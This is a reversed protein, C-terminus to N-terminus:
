CMICFPIETHFDLINKKQFLFFATFLNFQPHEIERLRTNHTKKTKKKGQNTEITELANFQQCKKFKLGFFNEYNCLVCRKAKQPQPPSPLTLYLRSSDHTKRTTNQPYYVHTILESGGLVLACVVDLRFLLCKTVVGIYVNPCLRVHCKKRERLLVCMFHWKNHRKVVNSSLFQKM